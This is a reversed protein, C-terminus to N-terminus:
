TGCTRADVWVDRNARTVQASSPQAVSSGAAIGSCGLGGNALGPVARGFGNGLGLAPIVDMGKPRAQERIASGSPNSM